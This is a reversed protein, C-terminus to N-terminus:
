LYPTCHYCNKIIRVSKWVVLWALFSPNRRFAIVEWATVQM